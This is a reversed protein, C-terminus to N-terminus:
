MSIIIMAVSLLCVTDYNHLTGIYSYIGDCATVKFRYRDRAM